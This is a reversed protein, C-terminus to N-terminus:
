EISLAENYLNRMLVNLENKNTKIELSDIYSSVISLTDEAENVIEDDDDLDLNLHDEVVQVNIPTQNELSTVFADFM